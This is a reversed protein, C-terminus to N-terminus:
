AESDDVLAPVQDIIVPGAIRGVERRKAAQLREALQETIDHEVVSRDKFKEPRRAKLFLAMLTDSKNIARKLGHDEIIDTGAEIAEDWDAAFQEDDNRWDFASTRGIKAAKAARAVSWGARLTSLFAERAKPTRITRSGRM